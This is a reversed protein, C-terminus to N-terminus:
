DGIASTERKVRDALCVVYIKAEIAWADVLARGIEM